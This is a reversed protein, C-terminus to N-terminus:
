RGASTLLQGTAACTGTAVRVALEVPARFLAVSDRSQAMRELCWYIILFASLRIWLAVTQKDYAEGVGKRKWEREYSKLFAQLRKESVATQESAAANERETALAFTLAGYAIDQVRAGIQLDEYDIVGVVKDPSSFLLNAPHYDGHLLATPAQAQRSAPLLRVDEIVERLQEILSNGLSERISFGPVADGGLKALAATLWGTLSDLVAADAVDLKSGASLLKSSAAHFLALTEGGAASEIEGWTCYTWDMSPLSEVYDYLSWLCGDSQFLTAGSVTRIAAPTLHFGTSRLKGIAAHQAEIRPATKGPAHSKLCYVVRPGSTDDTIRAVTSSAGGRMPTISFDALRYNEAIQTSLTGRRRPELKFGNLDDADDM